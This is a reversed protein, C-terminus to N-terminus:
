TATVTVRPGRGRLLALDDRAIRAAARTTDPAATCAAVGTLTALIQGVEDQTIWYRVDRAIDWLIAEGPGTGYMSVSRAVGEIDGVWAAGNINIVM